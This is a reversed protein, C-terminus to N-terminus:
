HSLLCSTAAISRCASRRSLGIRGICRSSQQGFGTSSRHSHRRRWFHWSESMDRRNLFLWHFVDLRSRGFCFRGFRCLDRGALRSRRNLFSRLAIRVIRLIRIQRRQSIRTIFTIQRRQLFLRSRQSFLAGRFHSWGKQNKHRATSRTVLSCGGWFLDSSLTGSM